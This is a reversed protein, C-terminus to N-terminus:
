RFNKLAKKTRITRNHTFKKAPADGGGVAEVTVESCIGCEDDLYAAVLYYVMDPDAGAFQMNYKGKTASRELYESLPSDGLIYDIIVNSISQQLQTNIKSFDPVDTAPFLGCTYYRNEDDPIYNADITGNEFTYDIAIKNNIFEPAKTKFYVKLMPTTKEGDTNMGYVYMVYETDPLLGTNFDEFVDTILFYSLLESLTMEYGAALEEFFIKDDAAIADDNAYEDIVAKPECFMNYSLTPDDPTIVFGTYLESINTIEVKFPAKEEPNQSEFSISDISAVSFKQTTKDNFHLVMKRDNQANINASFILCVATIILYYVTKM